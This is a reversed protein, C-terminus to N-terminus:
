NLARWDHLPMNLLGVFNQEQYQKYNVQLHEIVVGIESLFSSKSINFYSQEFKESSVQLNRLDGIESVSIIKAGCHKQVALAVELKSLNFSSVNYISNTYKNSEIVKTYLECITDVSIFARYANLESVKIFGNAVASYAFHNPLLEIRFRPSLGFVTAPRFVIYKFNNCETAKKLITAEIALKTICYLDKQLPLEDSEIMERNVQQTGYVSSTSNYIIPINSEACFEIIQETGDIGISKTLTPNHNCAYVSSLDAFHILVQPQFHLVSEKILRFSRTDLIQFSIKNDEQEFLQKFKEVDQEYMLNDIGQVNHGRRALRIALSSGLYGCIGTIFINM